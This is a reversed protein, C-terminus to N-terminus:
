ARRLRRGIVVGVLLGVVAAGLGVWTATRRIAIHLVPNDFMDTSAHFGGLKWGADGKVLTATWRTNVTFDRGDTLVFSDRSSGTAVGTDKYLQTLRDVEAETQYSAVKRSEGKTMKEIYEKVERPGRSVRGDMWTVVIDKDLHTLLRDIDGKNIAAVLERRLERLQEHAPDEAPKAEQAATASISLAWAALVLQQARM